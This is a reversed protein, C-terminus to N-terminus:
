KADGLIELFLSVAGSSTDKVEIRQAQGEKMPSELMARVVPSAEKLMQAHATVKGDATEITLDHSTKASLFKEWLEAIGEDISVKPRHSSSPTSAFITLVKGVFDYTHPWECKGNLKTRWERVYSVASLGKCDVSVKGDNQGIVTHNSCKGSCTQTISAGQSILWKVLKLSEQNDHEGLGTYIACVVLTEGQPHRSNWDFGDLNLKKLDELRGEDLLLWLLESQAM